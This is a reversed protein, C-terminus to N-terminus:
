LKDFALKAALVALASIQTEISRGRGRENVDESNPMWAGGFNGENDKSSYAARANKEVFPQYSRCNKEHHGIAEETVNSRQLQQCFDILDVFTSGKFAQADQDCTAKQDCTDQLIGQSGFPGSRTARIFNSITAHGEELLSYNGNIEFLRKLARLGALQNYSYITNDKLDCAIRVRTARGTRQTTSLRLGDGYLLDETLFGANHMWLLGRSAQDLLSIDQFNFDQHFRDWGFVVRVRKWLSRINSIAVETLEVPRGIGPYAKYIQACNSVYLHNTITNKFITRSVLTPWVTNEITHQLWEVGGGCYETTWSDQVIDHFFSARFALRNRIQPFLPSIASNPNSTEYEYSFEIADLSKSTVWGFDDNAQTFYEFMMNRTLARNVIKTFTLDTYEFIKANSIDQSKLLHRLYRILIRDTLDSTWASAGHWTNKKWYRIVFDQFVLHFSEASIIQSASINWTESASLTFSAFFLYWHLRVM